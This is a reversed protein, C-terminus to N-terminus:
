SPTRSRFRSVRDFIEYTNASGFSDNNIPTTSTVPRDALANVNKFSFPHTFDSPLGKRAALKATPLEEAPIVITEKAGIFSFNYHYREALNLPVRPRIIRIHAHTLVLAHWEVRRLSRRYSSQSKQM